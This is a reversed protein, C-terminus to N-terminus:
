PTTTAAAAAAAAAATTTTTTTTTTSRECFVQPSISRPLATLESGHTRFLSICVVTGVAIPRRPTASM